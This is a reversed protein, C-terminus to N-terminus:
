ASCGASAHTTSTSTRRSFIAPPAGARPRRTRDRMSTTPDGEYDVLYSVAATTSMDRFTDVEVPSIGFGARRLLHDIEPNLQSM